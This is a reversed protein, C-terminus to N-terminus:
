STRRNYVINLAFFMLVLFKQRELRLLAEEVFAQLQNLTVFYVHSMASEGDSIDAISKTIAAYNKLKSSFSGIFSRIEDKFVDPTKDSEKLIKETNFIVDSAKLPKDTGVPVSCLM